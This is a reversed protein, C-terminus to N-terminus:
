KWYEKDPFRGEVTARVVDDDDDDDEATEREKKEWGWSGFFGVGTEAESFRIVSASVSRATAINVTDRSVMSLANLKETM